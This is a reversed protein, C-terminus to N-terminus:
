KSELGANKGAVRGFVTIDLIANGGIRNTGHIGGTVEGAAYLGPIVKGHIDLVQADTNIRLGGMTHHVRPEGLGAYFPPHSITQGLVKKGFDEDEKKEVLKNYRDMTATLKAVDLSCKKALEEISDAKVIEGRKVMADVDYAKQSMEDTIVWCKKGPQRLVAETLVDRRAGEDAFRDGNTNVYVMAGVDLTTLGGAVAICQIYDMGVVDAGIEQAIIIGDGTAGPHNTTGVSADFRPDYKSRMEVNASFGGTAIVVTKSLFMRENGSKDVAAVGYVRGDKGDRILGTARTNLYIPINRSKAANNLVRIYGRGQENPVTPHSRPYLAGYGQFVQDAFKMGLSEYWHLGDLANECLVKVLAPNARNDGAALTQQMHLEPSDKIGQKDQREPDASNYFGGLLITNGGIVPMKELVIVKAGNDAATVAANLGAGGAGIVVVDAMEIRPTALVGASVVPLLMIAAAIVAIIRKTM